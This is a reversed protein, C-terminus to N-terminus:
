SLFHGKVYKIVKIRKNNKDYILVHAWSTWRIGTEFRVAHKGTDDQFYTFGGVSNRETLSLASIYNQYDEKIAPDSDHGIDRKWGALPDSRYRFASCGCSVVLVFVVIIFAVHRIRM